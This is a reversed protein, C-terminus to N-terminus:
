INRELEPVPSYSTGPYGTRGNLHCIGDGIPQDGGSPVKQALLLDFRHSNQDMKVEEAGQRAQPKQPLVATEALEIQRQNGQRRRCFCYGPTPVL